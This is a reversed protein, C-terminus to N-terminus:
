KEEKQDEVRAKDEELAAQKKAARKTARKSGGDKESESVKAKLAADSDVDKKEDVENATAKHEQRTLKTGESFDAGSEAIREQQAVLADLEARYKVALQELAKDRADSM